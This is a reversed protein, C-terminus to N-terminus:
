APRNLMPPSPWAVRPPGRADREHEVIQAEQRAEQQDREADEARRGEAGGPRGNGAIQLRLAAAVDDDRRDHEVPEGAHEDDVQEHVHQALRVGHVRLRAGERRLRVDREHVLHKAAKPMSIGGECSLRVSKRASAAADGDPEQDVARAEAIRDADDARVRGGRDIGADRGRADDDDRHHM